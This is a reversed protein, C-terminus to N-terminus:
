GPPTLRKQMEPTTEIKGDVGVRLIYTTGLTQAMEQWHTPGAIFLPKSLADSLTGADPGPPILITMAQTHQVPSGTRPDLLHSYRQGEYEFFRQYDGSTGISEGDHLYLTALTGPSRPHQLGVRWPKGHKNGLALINGGINVLANQIGHKKLILGARDLAWGKLYGGFDLAVKRNRSRVTHQADIKLDSISPAANRWAALAAADPLAAKFTDSHFGWLAVLEGIGPNFLHNSQDSIDQAKRILGALEESVTHPKGQAIAANLATLDSTQWAHYQRHLRDFEQLVAKSAIAANQADNEAVTIEVRTGFVFSEYHHTAPTCALLSVM